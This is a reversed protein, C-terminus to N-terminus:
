PEFSTGKCHSCPRKGDEVSADELTEGVLEFDEQIDEYAWNINGCNYCKVAEVDPATRIPGGFYVKNQSGCDPCYWDDIM